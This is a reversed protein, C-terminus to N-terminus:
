GQQGCAAHTVPVLLKRTHALLPPTQAVLRRHEELEERAGVGRPLEVEERLLQAIACKVGGKHLAWNVLYTPM